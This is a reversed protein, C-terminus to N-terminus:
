APVCGSRRTDVLDLRCHRALRACIMRPWMLSSRWSRTPRSYRKRSNRANPFTPSPPWCKGGQKPKWRTLGVEVPFESGDRHQALLDRGSGMARVEPTKAFAARLAPHGERIRQPLLVEVAQGALTGQPYGFMADLAPNTMSIKGDAGAMLLGIPLSSVMKSFRHELRRRQTIDSVFAVACVENNHPMSGLGIEIPFQRGDAHQAFLEASGM